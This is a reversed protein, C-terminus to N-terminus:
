AVARQRKMSEVQRQQILHGLIQLNRGVVALAAYRRFGSIDHDPCRDLGHNELANIASEIASHQRKRVVFEDASEREKDKESLRGKKPLIVLDLLSEMEQRNTRNHFGKDYSCSILFPFRKKAVETFLVAVQEDTLKEMVLHHLIFGYQDNLIAVRLGLEFPVGAKGKCIWETHEQFVSFVKQEHPITEGEFVRRRIQDTQRHAHRLFSEIMEVTQQYDTAQLRILEVSQEVRNIFQSVIELYAEYAQRIQQDRQEKKKADKSNSRKLNQIKRLLRKIKKISHDLQRWGSIGFILCLRSTLTMAKRIADFLLTIDTPYEVNTEVVFSDCKGALEKKKNAPVVLDHGAQVVVQSIEDLAEPTLLTVNDKLTQLAYPTEDFISHGIMERIKRHYDALDKLKDYDLNSNLRITGLVFITWLPMGPRGTETDVKDPVIRRLIAFVKDRLEQNQYIHQLGMLLKTTEDRSRLDFQIQSPDVEGFKLQPEIPKRM